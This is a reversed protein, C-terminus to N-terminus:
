TQLYRCQINVAFRVLRSNGSQVRVGAMPNGIHITCGHILITPVFVNTQNSNTHV